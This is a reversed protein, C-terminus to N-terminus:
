AGPTPLFFTAIARAGLLIIAGLITGWTSGHDHRDMFIYKAGLLMLGVVVLINAWTVM